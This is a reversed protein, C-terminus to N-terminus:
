SRASWRRTPASSSRWARRLPKIPTREAGVVLMTGYCIGAIAEASASMLVAPGDILV